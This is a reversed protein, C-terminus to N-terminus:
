KKLYFLRYHWFSKINTQKKSPLRFLELMETHYIMILIETIPRLKAVLHTRSKSKSSKKFSQIKQNASTDLHLISRTIPQLTDM